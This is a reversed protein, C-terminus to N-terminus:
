GPPSIMVDREPDSPLSSREQSRSRPILPISVRATTRKMNVMISKPMKEEQGSEPGRELERWRSPLTEPLTEYHHRPLTENGMM